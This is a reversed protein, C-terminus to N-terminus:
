RAGDNINGPFPPGANRHHGCRFPPPLLLSEWGQPPRGVTFTMSLPAIHPIEHDGPPGADRDGIGAQHVVAPLPPDGTKPAPLDAVQGPHADLVVGSEFPPVQGPDSDTSSPTARTNCSSPASRACRNSRAQACPGPRRRTGRARLPNPRLHLRRNVREGTARREDPVAPQIHQDVIEVGDHGPHDDCPVAVVLM